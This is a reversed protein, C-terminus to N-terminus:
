CLVLVSTSARVAESSVAESSVLSSLVLVLERTSCGIRTVTCNCLLLLLSPSVPHTGTYRLPSVFCTSLLFCFVCFVVCFCVVSLPVSCRHIICPNLVCVVLVLCVTAPVSRNPEASPRYCPSLPPSGIITPRVSPHTHSHSPSHSLSFPTCSPVPPHLLAYM